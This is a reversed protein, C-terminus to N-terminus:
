TKFELPIDKWKRDLLPLSNSLGFNKLFISYNKRTIDTIITQRKKDIKQHFPISKGFIKLSESVLLYHFNKWSKNNEMRIYFCGSNNIVTGDGDIFGILMSTLKKQSFKKLKKVSPPNYTKNNKIDFKLKIDKMIERHSAVCSCYPYSGKGSIKSVGFTVNGKILESYKKIHESDRAALVLKLTDKKNISGDAFLFGMWYYVSLEESLLISLDSGFRTTKKLGLSKAKNKIQSHTINPFHTILKDFKTVPYLEKLKEELEGVWVTNRM